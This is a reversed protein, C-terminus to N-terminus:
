RKLQKNRQNILGEISVKGDGAVAYPIEFRIITHKKIEGLGQNFYEYTNGLDFGAVSIVNFDKDRIIPYYISNIDESDMKLISKRFSSNEM